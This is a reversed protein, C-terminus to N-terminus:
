KGEISQSNASDILRQSTSIRTSKAEFDEIAEIAYVVKRGLKLHPPGEGNLRWRQLAKRSLKWRKSLEAETLVCDGGQHARTNSQIALKVESLLRTLNPENVDNDSPSHTTFYKV